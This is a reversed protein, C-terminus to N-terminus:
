SAEGDVYFPLAEVDGTGDSDDQDERKCGDLLADADSIKPLPGDQMLDTRASADEEVIGKLMPSAVQRCQEAGLGNGDLYVIFDVEMGEALTQGKEVDNAHVFVDGCHRAAAAHAMPVSPEIWGYRGCWKRVQGRVRDNSIRSRPKNMWMNAKEGDAQWPNGALWLARRPRKAPTTDGAATEEPTKSTEAKALSNQLGGEDSCLCALWPLQQLSEIPVRMEPQLQLLGKLIEQMQESVPLKAVIEELKSQPLKAPADDPYRGNVLVSMLIGLSWLDAKFDHVGKQLVEPAIYRPSGVTSTAESLGEGVIKSLGFDALKVELLLDSQANTRQADVLVNELKLDRHIIAHSHLHGLGRVLQRFIFCAESEKFRMRDHIKPRSVLVSFLDGGTVLELLFFLWDGERVVGNFHVVNPHPPLMSLIDAERQIKKMERDINASLQLHHLNFAKAAYQEGTQDERCVFVCGSAGRGLEEGRSYCGFRLPCCEAM